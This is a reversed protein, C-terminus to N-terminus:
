AADLYLIMRCSDARKTLSAITFKVAAALVVPLMLTLRWVVSVPPKIYEAISTVPLSQYSWVFTDIVFLVRVTVEEFNRGNFSVM